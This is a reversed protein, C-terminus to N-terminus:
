DRAPLLVPASRTLAAIAIVVAIVVTALVFVGPTTAWAPFGPASRTNATLVPLSALATSAALWRRKIKYGSAVAAALVALVMAALLMAGPAPVAWAPRLRGIIVLGLAGYFSLMAAFMLCVSPALRQAPPLIGVLPRDEPASRLEADLACVVEQHSRRSRWTFLCSLAAMAVALYPWQDMAAEFWNSGRALEPVLFFLAVWLTILGHFLRRRDHQKRLTTEYRSVQANWTDAGFHRSRSPAHELDHLLSGALRRTLMGEQAFYRTHDRLPHGLVPTAEQEVGQPLAPLLMRGVMDHQSSFEQWVLPHKRQSRQVPQPLELPDRRYPHVHKLLFGCLFGLGTSVSVAAWRTLTMDGVPFATSLMQKWPDTVSEMASSAIEPTVASLPLTLLSMGATASGTLAAANASLGPDMLPATGWAMFVSAIPLLWAVLWVVPHRAQRLLWIPKLGSGVGVFRVVKAQNRGGDRALLQHALYGGQSHAVIVIDDCRAELWRLRDELYNLLGEREHDRAAATIVHDGVNLRSCLLVLICIGVGLAVWPHAATLATLGFVCVLLTLLRWSVRAMHQYEPTLLFGFGLSERLYTWFGRGDHADDLIVSRDRRDPGILLLVAPLCRALYGLTVLWRLWWRPRRFQDSWVAEAMLVEGMPKGPIHIRAVAHAPHGYPAKVSPTRDEATERWDVASPGHARTIPSLMGQGMHRLVSEHTGAQSHQNGIGHVLLYGIRGAERRRKM